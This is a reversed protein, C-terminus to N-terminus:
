SAVSVICLTIASKGEELRDCLAAIQKEKNMDGIARWYKAAKGGQSWKAVMREFIGELSAADRLCSELLTEILKTQLAPSTEILRAIETLHQVQSLRRSLSTPADRVQSRLESILRAIKLSCEALQVAAAVAGLVELGSM